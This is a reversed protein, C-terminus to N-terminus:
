GLQTWVAAAATDVCCMYVANGTTIWIDGVHYGHSIDNTAGPADSHRWPDSASGSGTVEAAKHVKQLDKDYVAVM